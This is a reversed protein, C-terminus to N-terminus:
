SSGDIGGGKIYVPVTMLLARPLGTPFTPLFQPSSKMGAVWIVRSPTNAFVATAVLPLVPDQM